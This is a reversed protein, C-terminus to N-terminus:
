ARYGYLKISGSAILNTEPLFQLGNIAVANPTMRGRLDTAYDDADSGRWALNSYLAPSTSSNRVEVFGYVGFGAANSINGAIGFDNTVRQGIAVRTGAGGGGPSSTWTNVLERYPTGGSAGLWTSGGDSSLRIWLNDGVTSNIIGELEFRLYRYTSSFWAATTFDVSTAGLINRTDLIEVNQPVVLGTLQSGDVAPLGANGGVDELQVIDGIDTGVNLFAATGLGTLGTSTPEPGLSVALAENALAGSDWTVTVDTNAGVAVSAIAGYITATQVARVRRGVTYIASLDGPVQFVTGSVFTATHGWDFWSGDEAHRRVGGMTARSSDNVASAPMGEPFGDPPTANNNADIPSWQTIDSM